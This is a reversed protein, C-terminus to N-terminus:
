ALARELIDDQAARALTKERSVVPTAQVDIVPLPAPLAAVPAAAEREVRDIAELVKDRIEPYPAIAMRIASILKAVDPHSTILINTVSSPTAFKTWDGNLKSALALGEHLKAALLAVGHADGLEVATDLTHHLKLRIAKLQSLIDLGDKALEDELEVGPKLANRLYAARV